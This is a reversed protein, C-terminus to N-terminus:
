FPFTALFDFIFFGTLYNIAIRKLDLEIRGDFREYATFFNIIIDLSFFIDISVEVGAFFISWGTTQGNRANFDDAFALRFPSISAIYFVAVIILFNWVM